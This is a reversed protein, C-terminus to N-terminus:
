NLRRCLTAFRDRDLPTISRHASRILYDLLVMAADLTFRDASVLHAVRELTERRIEAVEGDQNSPAFNDPVLLDHVHLVERQLGEEALRCIGITARPQARAILEAGIGAEEWAEKVLTEQVTMGAAVGGAVLNDLLGPDISKEASRRAIWMGDCALGNLHASHTLFGFFRMAAREIEFLKPGEEYAVVAQCEGRWGRLYGQEFLRRTTAAFASSRRRVPGPCAVGLASGIPRFLEPFELLLVSLAPDVSGIVAGDCWLPVREFAAASEEAGPWLGLPNAARILDVHGM